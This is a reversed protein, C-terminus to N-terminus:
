SETIKTCAIHQKRCHNRSPLLSLGRWERGLFKLRQSIDNGGISESSPDLEEDDDVVRRLLRRDCLRLVDLSTTPTPSNGMLPALEIAAAIPLLSLGADRRALAFKLERVSADGLSCWGCDLLDPSRDLPLEVDDVVDVDVVPTVPLVGDLESIPLVVAFDVVRRPSVFPCVFVAVTADSGINLIRDVSARVGADDLSLVL